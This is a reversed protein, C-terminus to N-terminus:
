LDDYLKRLQMLLIDFILKLTLVKKLSKLNNKEFCNLKIYVRRKISM